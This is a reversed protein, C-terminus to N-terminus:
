HNKGSDGIRAVGRESIIGVGCNRILKDHINVNLAPEILRIAKVLPDAQGRVYVQNDSVITDNSSVM